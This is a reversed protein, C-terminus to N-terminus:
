EGWIPPPCRVHCATHHQTKQLVDGTGIEVLGTRRLFSRGFLVTGAAAASTDNRCQRGDQM